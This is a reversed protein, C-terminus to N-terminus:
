RAYRDIEARIKWRGMRRRDDTEEDFWTLVEKVKLEPAKKVKWTPNGGLVASICLEVKHAITKRIQQNAPIQTRVKQKM